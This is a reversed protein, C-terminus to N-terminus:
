TRSERRRRALIRLRSELEEREVYTGRLWRDGSTRDIARRGHLVRRNDFALLDGPCLRLEVVFGRDEALDLALRLAAYFRESDELSARLPGRLWPSWRAEVLEGDADVVLFPSRHRYDSDTAKNVFDVPITTLADFAEPEASRLYATLGAADCLLTEGGTAENVMCQLFQLGPMYERTDLDTHAPLALDTYANSTVDDVNSRVDFVRGFNTERIPGIRSPLSEILNPDDALGRVLGVGYTHTATLWQEFAGADDCVAPGDFTVAALDLDYGWWIREPLPYADVLGDSRHGWARLWGAHFTSSALQGVAGAQQHQSWQVTLGGSATPNASFIRLTAPITNPQVQQERSLAHTTAPDPSNERLTLRHHTTEVGDDWTARVGLPSVTATVIRRNTPYSDFDPLEHDSM